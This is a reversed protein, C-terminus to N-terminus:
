GVAALAQGVQVGFGLAFSLGTFALGVISWICLLISSPWYDDRAARTSGVESLLGITTVM